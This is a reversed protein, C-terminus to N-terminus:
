RKSELVQVWGGYLQDYRTFTDSGMTQRLALRTEAALAKLAEQRQALPIAPSAALDQKKREAAQKIEFVSIAMASPLEQEACFSCLQRYSQDDSRQYEAFRADGLQQRIAETVQARDARKQEQVLPDSTNVMDYKDDLAKELQFIARFEEPTPNFGVLNYRLREATRSVSLDLRELEAPTLVRGLAAQREAELKRLEERDADTLAGGPSNEAREELLKRRWDYEDNFTQVQRRKDEPLFDLRGQQEAEGPLYQNLEEPYNVGLLQHLVEPMEKELQALQGKAVQDLVLRKEGTEWFRFERNGNKVQNYRTTYLKMVDAIVIDKITEWPCGIAHLNAIYQRYDPSEVRRWDLVPPAANTPLVAQTQSASVVKGALAGAHGDAAEARESAPQNRSLLVAALVVNVAVSLILLARSSM